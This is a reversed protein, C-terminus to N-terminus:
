QYEIRKLVSFSILVLLHSLSLSVQYVFIYEVDLYDANLNQCGVLPTNPVYILCQQQSSCKQYALDTPQEWQNISFILTSHNFFFPILFLRTIADVGLRFL